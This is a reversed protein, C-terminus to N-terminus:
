RNSFTSHMDLVHELLGRPTIIVQPKRKRFKIGIFILLLIQVQFLQTSGKRCILKLYVRFPLGYWFRITFGISFNFYYDMQSEIHNCMQIWIDTTFGKKRIQIQIKWQRAWTFEDRSSIMPYKKSMSDHNISKCVFLCFILKGCFSKESVRQEDTQATALLRIKFRMRYICNMSFVFHFFHTNKCKVLALPLWCFISEVKIWLSFFIYISQCKTSHESDFGGFHIGYRFRILDNGVFRIRKDM